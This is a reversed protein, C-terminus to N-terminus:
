LGFQATPTFTKRQGSARDQLFNAPVEKGLYPYWVQVGQSAPALPQLRAWDKSL